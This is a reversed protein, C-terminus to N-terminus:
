LNVGHFYISLDHYFLKKNDSSEALKKFRQIFDEPAGFSQFQEDVIVNEEDQLSSSANFLFSNVKVIVDKWSDLLFDIQTNFIINLSTPIFSKLENGLYELFEPNWGEATRRLECISLMFEICGKYIIISDYLVNILYHILQITNECIHWFFDNWQIKANSKLYHGVFDLFKKISLEIAQNKVEFNIASTVYDNSISEITQYLYEIIEPAWENYEPKLKSFANSFYSCMTGISLPGKCFTFIERFSQISLESSINGYARILATLSTEDQIVDQNTLSSDIIQLALDNQSRDIDANALYSLACAFTNLKDENGEGNELIQQAYYDLYKQNGELRNQKNHCQVLTSAASVYKCINTQIFQDLCDPDIQIDRKKSIVKSPTPLRLLLFDIFSDEIGDMMIIQLIMSTSATQIEDTINFRPQDVALCQFVYFCVIHSPSYDPSSDFITVFLDIYDQRREIIMKKSTFKKLCQLILYIMMACVGPNQDFDFSSVFTELYQLITNDIEIASIIVNSYIEANKFTLKFNDLVTPESFNTILRGVLEKALDLAVNSHNAMYILVSYIVEIAAEDSYQIFNLCLMFYQLGLEDSSEQDNIYLSQWIILSKNILSAAEQYVSPEDLKKIIDLITDPNVYINLLQLKIEPEMTRSIIIKIANFINLLTNPNALGNQLVAQVYENELFLETPCLSVANSLIQYGVEDEEQCKNMCYTFIQGSIESQQLHTRLTTIQSYNIPLISNIDKCFILLFYKVYLDHNENQDKTFLIDTFFSEWIEPFVKIILQSQTQIFNYILQEQFEHFHEFFYPSFLFQQIEQILEPPMEQYKIKIWFLILTLTFEKSTTNEFNEFNTICFEIIDINQYIQILNECAQEHDEPPIQDSSGIAAFVQQEFQKVQDQDM